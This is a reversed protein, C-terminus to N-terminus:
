SIVLLQVIDWQHKDEPIQHMITQGATMNSRETRLKNKPGTFRAYKTSLKQQQLVSNMTLNVLSM